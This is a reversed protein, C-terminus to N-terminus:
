CCCQCLSNCCCCCRAIIAIRLSSDAPLASQVLAAVEQQRSCIGSRQEAHLVAMGGPAEASCKHIQDMADAAKGQDQVEQVV